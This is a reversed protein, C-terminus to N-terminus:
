PEITEVLGLTEHEGSRYRMMTQFVRAGHERVPLAVIAEGTLEHTAGTEDTLSLQVSAPARGEYALEARATTLAHVGDASAVWGSQMTRDGVTVARASFSFSPSFSAAFWRSSHTAVDNRTGWTRTRIGTGDITAQRNGLRIRGAYRGPQEFHGSSVTRVFGMEDADTNREVSGRAGAWAGFELDLEVQAGAGHREGVKPLGTVGAGPFVLAFDKCRLSWRQLPEDVELILRAVSHARPDRDKDKTLMTAVAGGPVFLTLSADATKDRPHYEARVLGGFGSTDDFFAFGLRESWGSENGHEHAADDRPDVQQTTTPSV